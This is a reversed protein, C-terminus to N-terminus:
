PFVISDTKWNLNPPANMAVPIPEPVNEPNPLNDDDVDFGQEQLKNMDDNNLNLRRGSLISTQDIVINKRETREEKM